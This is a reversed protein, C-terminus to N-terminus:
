NTGEPIQGEDPQVRAPANKKDAAEAASAHRMLAAALDRAEHPFLAIAVDPAGLIVATMSPAHTLPATDISLHGGAFRADIISLTM